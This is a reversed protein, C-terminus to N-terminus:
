PSCFTLNAIVAEGREEKKEEVSLYIMEGSADPYACLGQRIM